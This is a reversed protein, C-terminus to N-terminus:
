ADDGHEVPADRDYHFKMYAIGPAMVLRWALEVEESCEPDYDRLTAILAELWLDYLGPRIDLHRRGHRIAVGELYYDVHGAAYFTLLHYFAKKLMAQQHAMDTHRFKEAVEPSAALFRAYFAEFFGAGRIERALARAYSADFVATIDM